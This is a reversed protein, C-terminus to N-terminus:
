AMSAAPSVMPANWTSLRACACINGRRLGVRKSSMMTWTAMTRGPGIWPPM